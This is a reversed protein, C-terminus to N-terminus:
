DEWEFETGGIRITDGPKVGARRLARDLGVKKLINQFRSVAEPQSFNSMASLRELQRGSVAFVGPSSQEILFGREVRLSQAAGSGNGPAPVHVPRPNAALTRLMADLLATVGEGTAASVGFVKRKPYRKRLRKLVAEAEPLDTKNLALLRPKKALTRSYGKLEAEIVRVGAVADTEKYGAPDVLLVIVRTREVHRLFEDGLGKGEHAGEILGPIDALVFNQEKHRVQGLNPSLTTFPYDAIKPRANSVRALLTSKGANPFGALGVDAILKLELLLVVDEGPEGKEAIRPASEAAALDVLEYVAHERGHKDQQQGRYQFLDAYEESLRSIFDYYPRSIYIQDIGAFSMIRQADNIGDGVMNSQGNMDKVISVPGLHIGTRVELEPYDKHQHGTVVERFERAVQLADEPHQLFGIAAGDGTDLIIREDDGLKALCDSVLQNFLKKIKIQKN